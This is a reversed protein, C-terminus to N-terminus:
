FPKICEEDNINCICWMVDKLQESQPTLYLWVPSQMMDAHRWLIGGVKTKKRQAPDRELTSISGEM